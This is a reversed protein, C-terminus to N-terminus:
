DLDLLQQQLKRIAMELFTKVGYESIGHIKAIEQFSYENGDKFGYRLKIVDREIVTLISLIGRLRECLDSCSSLNDVLSFGLGSPRERYNEKNRTERSESRALKTLDELSPPFLASPDKGLVEAISLATERDPISDLVEYDYITDPSKGVREGLERGSLGAKVRADRLAYNYYRDKPFSDFDGVKAM